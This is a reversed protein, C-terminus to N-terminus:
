AKQSCLLSAFLSLEWKKVLVNFFDLKSFWVLVVGLTMDKFRTIVKGSSLMM